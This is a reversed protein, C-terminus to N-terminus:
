KRIIGVCILMTASLHTAAHPLNSMQESFSSGISRPCSNANNYYGSSKGKEFSWTPLYLRSRQLSIRDSTGGPSQCFNDKGLVGSKRMEIAASTTFPRYLLM